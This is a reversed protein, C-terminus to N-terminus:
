AARPSSPSDGLAPDLKSPGHSMGLRTRGGRAMHATLGPGNRPPLVQSLAVYPGQSCPWAGPSLRLPGPVAQLRIAQYLTARHWAADVGFLMPESTILSARSSARAATPGLCGVAAAAEPTLQPVQPHATPGALSGHGWGSGGVGYLGWLTVGM